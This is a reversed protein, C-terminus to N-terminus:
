GTNRLGSAIGNITLIMAERLSEAEEGEPDNLGRLRKLLEVQIYNLPDIYPDRLHISRQLDLEADMLEQHGTIELVAKKTIKYEALITQFISKAFTCNPVLGSYLAAIDMDAKLLSMEANNLLARFFPWGAYMMQLFHISEASTQKYSEIGTGLGYWGPLNFRSQMWSFVWPIARITEISDKGSQRVAPRSGIYLRKIEDLPTAARWFDLFGPTDFVLARYKRYAAASMESIATKWSILLEGEQSIPSSALLVAHVIQELHQKALKPNAYRSAIIEGQETVRFKGNVTGPPQARIGRNAPGGGRAVTGGRGHFLVLGIKYQQCTRSINEQAQYLAWNSALYGGDKNSDSYGIMVM